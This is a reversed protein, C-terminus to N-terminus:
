YRRRAHRLSDHLAKEKELRQSDDLYIDKRPPPPAVQAPPPPAEESMGDSGSRLQVAVVVDVITGPEASEGAPISQGIVTGPTYEDTERREINGLSLGADRLTARADQVTQDLVSPVYFHAPEPGLSVVLKIVTGSKLPKGAKPDQEIVSGKLMRSSFRYRIDTPGSILGINKCRLQADRVDLGALDPAVDAAAPLAPVVRIKRGPKALSGATPHQELIWGERVRASVKGHTLVLVFGASDAAQKASQVPMSTLNPVLRATGHRTYIPMVVSDMFILLALLSLFTITLPRGVPSATFQRVRDAIKRPIEYNM